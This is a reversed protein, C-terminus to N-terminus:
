LMNILTNDLRGKLVSWSPANIVVTPLSNWPKLARETFFDKRMHLAFRGQPICGNGHTRVSSAMSFPDAGGDGGRRRLFSSLAILFFALCWYNLTM